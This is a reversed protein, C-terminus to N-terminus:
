EEMVWGPPSMGSNWFLVFGNKSYDGVRVVFYEDNVSNFETRGSNSEEPRSAWTESVAEVCDRPALGCGLM